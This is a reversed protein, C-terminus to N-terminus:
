PTGHTAVVYLDALVVALVHEAIPVAQVGRTNSLRIGRAFLEHPNLTEVAVASTHIWRLRPAAALEDANVIWTYAVEATPWARSREEDTKAYTFSVDPFRAILAGAAAEPIQWHGVRQQISLLVRLDRDM